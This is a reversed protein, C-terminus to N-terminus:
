AARRACVAAGYFRPSLARLRVVDPVFAVDVFGARDLAARWQEATLFGPAPRTEADLKVDVFSDLLQFPLEPAVPQGSVPRIGEGAVLWGGPALATRAEALTQRLDRALHFVNVGWVLTVGAASVGQEAWPLNLDLAGFTIPIGPHTAELTRQARRRFFPVPETCRYSAVRGLAGDAALRELLAATASGLGAGIELVRAGPGVHAAAGHAAVRNNLAYYGHANDFYSAWLSVKQFLAREGSVEGRAVRPYIAAAEDLLAYAPAYSPDNELAAARLGPRDSVPLPGALRWRGQREVLVDATTLWALLWALAPRFASVFGRAALLADVDRPEALLTTLGLEHLLDLAVHVAYQDVLECGRHQRPNFLADTFGAEALIEYTGSPAPETPFASM